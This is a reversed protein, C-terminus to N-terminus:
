QENVEAILDSVDVDTAALAPTTLGNFLSSVRAGTSSLLSEEGASGLMDLGQALGTSYVEEIKAAFDESTYQDTVPTDETTVINTYVYQRPGTWDYVGPEIKQWKDYTSGYLEERGLYYFPENTDPIDPDDCTLDSKYIVLNKLGTPGYLYDYTIFRDNSHSDNWGQFQGNVRYANSDVYETYAVQIATNSNIVGNTGIEPLLEITNKLKSRIVNAIDTLIEESILFDAM